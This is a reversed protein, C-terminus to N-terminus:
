FLTRSYKKLYPLYTRTRLQGRKGRPIDEEIPPLFDIAKDHSAKALLTKEHLNEPPFFHFYSGLKSADTVDQGLIIGIIMRYINMNVM